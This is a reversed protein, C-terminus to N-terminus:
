EKDTEAPEVVTKVTHTVTGGAKKCDEASTAFLRVENIECYVGDPESIGMGRGASMPAIMFVGLTLGLFVGLIRKM